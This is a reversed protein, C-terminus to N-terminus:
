RKPDDLAVVPGYGRALMGLKRARADLILIMDDMQYVVFDNPLVTANRCLLSVFPTDLGVDYDRPADAFSVQLGSSAWFETRVRPLAGQPNPRMDIAPGFAWWSSRPEREDTGARTAFHPLLVTYPEDHPRPDRTVVVLDCKTGNDAAIAALRARGREIHADLAKERRTGDTRVRWVAGDGKGIYYVWAIPPKVFSLDRPREITLAGISSFLWYFPLLVLAYSTTQALLSAGFAGKWRRPGAPMALVYPAWEILVSTVFSLAWMAVLLNRAQDLPTAGPTWSLAYRGVLMVGIFGVFFSAFNALIAPGIVKAFRLRYRWAIVGAEVLSIVFNLGVLHLFGAVMIASGADARAAAPALLLMAALLAARRM